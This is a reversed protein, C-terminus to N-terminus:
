ARRAARRAMRRENESMGAITGYPLASYTEACRIIVPCEQCIKKAQHHHDFFIDPDVERCRAREQWSM